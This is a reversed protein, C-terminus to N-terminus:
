HCEFTLRAGGWNRAALDAPSIWFQYAGMDGFRWQIMDDYVLQLLLHNGENQASANGQIDVGLGLMQHWSQTPLRYRSNILDRIPPPMANYAARDGTAMTLLTDTTIDDVSRLTRYRVIDEFTKRGRNFLEKFRDTAAPSMHTWPDKDAAFAEAEAIFAGFTSVQRQYDAAQAERQELEKQARVLTEDPVAPKKGFVSLRPKPTLRDVEARAKELYPRRAREVDAAHFRAIKLQEAYAQASHWWLPLPGGVTESAQKATFFFQRREFHAAVAEAMAARTAEGPDDEEADPESNRIALTTFEVPWYPFVKRVWPSPNQPFLDGCPEFAPTADAPFPTPTPDAGAPVHVVAGNELFFALAGDSPLPLNPNAAAVDALAFQGAFVM